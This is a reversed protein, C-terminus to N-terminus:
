TKVKLGHSNNEVLYNSKWYFCIHLTYKFTQVTSNKSLQINNEELGM